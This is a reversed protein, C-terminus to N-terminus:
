EKNGNWLCPSLVVRHLSGELVVDPSSVYLSNYCNFVDYFGLTSSVCKRLSDAL